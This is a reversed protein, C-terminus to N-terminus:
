RAELPTADIRVDPGLTTIATIHVDLAADITEFVGGVAPVGVGAGFKAGLYLVFEDVLRQRLLSGALTPGGEALVDVFGMEGLHKLMTTLDVGDPGPAVIVDSVGDPPKVGEPLFLLPDRDYVTAAV